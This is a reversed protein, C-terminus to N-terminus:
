ENTDLILSDLINQYSHQKWRFTIMSRVSDSYKQIGHIKSVDLLYTDYQKATFRSLETLNNIDYSQSGPYPKAGIAPEYCITEDGTVADLYLNLAVKDGGGDIHPTVLNSGTFEAFFCNTPPIKFINKLIQKKFVEPNKISYFTSGGKRAKSYYHAIIVDSKFQYWDASVNLFSNSIKSFM